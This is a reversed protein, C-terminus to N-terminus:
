KKEKQELREIQAAIRQSEKAAREQRRRGDEQTSRRLELAKRWHQLAQPADGAALCVEALHDLMAPDNPLMSVAQELLKRAEETKGQRHHLWGLSDRIYANDPKLKVARSLYLFAQNLNTKSDAWIYGLYNLAGVHQPNIKVLREMVALAQSRNEALELFLGYDYLLREDEPYLTLAREFVRRCGEEQDAAQYLGALLLHTDPSLRQGALAAELLRVAEDPRAMERLIRVQLLLADEYEEAAPGIKRLEAIAEEYDKAQFRLVALLYHAEALETEKLLKALLVAAKDHEEWRVYLKALTLEAREQSGALEKLRKLEAMAKEDKNQLLLVHILAIRAEENMEDHKLLEQYIKVAESHKEQRVFAEAMELRLGESPNAAAAQQYHKMAQAFDEEALLMRALFLHAPWSASDAALAKKLEAKAQDRSGEALLLESLLLLPSADKPSLEHVKRYQEAAAQFNGSQVLVKALLMRSETSEPNRALYDQLVEAAEAKRNLQMLLLPLKSIVFEADPDCILAKEYAELAADYEATLESHRGWLFYFYSCGYDSEEAAKDVLAAPTKEDPRLALDTQPPRGTESAPPAPVPPAESACSSCLILLSLLFVAKLPFFPSFM